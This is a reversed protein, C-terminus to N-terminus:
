SEGRFDALRPLPPAALRSKVISAHMTVADGVATAIALSLARTHHTLFDRPAARASGYCTRDTHGKMEAKTALRRLLAVTTEDLAGTVEAVLVWVERGHALSHM